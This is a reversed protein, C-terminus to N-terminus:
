SKTRRAVPDNRRRRSRFGAALGALGSGLMILTAPEPVPEFDYRVDSFVYGGSPFASGVPFFNLKLTAIGSGSIMTSFVVPHDPIDFTSVFVSGTMVFPTTLFLVPETSDPIVVGPGSFSLTSNRAFWWAGVTTGNFTAQGGGDLFAFACPSNIRQPLSDGAGGSAAFGNGSFNFSIGSWENVTHPAGGIDVYGGTIVINDARCERSSLLLFATM